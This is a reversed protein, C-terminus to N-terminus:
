TAFPLPAREPMNDLPILRMWPPETRMVWDGALLWEGIMVAPMLIEVNM